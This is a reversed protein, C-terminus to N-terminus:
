RDEADTYYPVLKPVDEKISSRAPAPVFLGGGGVSTLGAAGSQNGVSQFGEASFSIHKSPNTGVSRVLFGEAAYVNSVALCVVMVVKGVMSVGKM